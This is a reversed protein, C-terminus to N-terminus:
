LLAPFICLDVRHGKGSLERLEEVLGLPVGSRAPWREIRSPLEPRQLLGLLEALDQEILAQDGLILQPRGQGLLLPEAAGEAPDQDVEAENTLGVENRGQSPLDAEIEDVEAVELDIRACRREDGLLHSSTIARQGDAVLIGHQDHRHRIRRVDEGEVVDPRDGALLHLGHHGRRGIDVLGDPLVPLEVL